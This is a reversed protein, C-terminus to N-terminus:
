QFDLIDFPKNRIWAPLPIQALSPFNEAQVIVSDEYTSFRVLCRRDNKIWEWLGHRFTFALTILSSKLRESEAQNLLFAFKLVEGGSSQWESVKELLTLGSALGDPGSLWTADILHGNPEGGIAAGREKLAHTVYQDGVPTFAIPRGSLAPACTVALPTDYSVVVPGVCDTANHTLWNILLESGAIRSTGRWVVLQDADEDLRLVIENSDSSAPSSQERAVDTSDRSLISLEPFFKEFVEVWAARVEVVATRMRPGLKMRLRNSYMEWANAWTDSCQCEGTQIHSINTSPIAPQYLDIESRLRREEDVQIAVGRRMLKLGIFDPPLHSATVHVVDVDSQVGFNSAVPTTALGLWVTRTKKLAQMIHEAALRSVQRSDHSIAIQESIHPSGAYLLVVRVLRALHENSWQARFNHLM